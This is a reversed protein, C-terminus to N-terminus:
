SSHTMGNFLTSGSAGQRMTDWETADATFPKTTGSARYAMSGRLDKVLPKGDVTGINSGNANWTALWAHVAFKDQAVKKEDASLESADSKAFATAETAVADEGDVDRYQVTPSGALTYLDAALKENRAHAVSDTQRVYFRKGDADEYLTTKNGQGLKSIETLEGTKLTAKAGPLAQPAKPLEAPKAPTVAAQKANAVADQMAAAGKGAAAYSGDPKTVLWKQLGGHSAFAKVAVGSSHTLTLTGQLNVSEPFLGSKLM